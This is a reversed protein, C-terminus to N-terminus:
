RLALLEAATGDLTDRECIVARDLGLAVLVGAAVVSGALIVPARKPDLSRIAATEEVTMSALGDIMARLRGVELVHGHVQDRDYAVLDLDIAALSTWTGAIGVLENAQFALPQLMEAVHSRATDMETPSAPRSTLVRDTLRVSGIDVSVRNRSTVLETSGGGIDCVATENGLDLGLGAGAWALRAEEEGSVLVPRTGLAAQAVDFFVERNSADRAASTAVAKRRQVAESDMLEGFGTLVNVTRAIAAESLLGSEDVGVGLGTVEALRHAEVVGDTILLRMSNTGIDVAAVRM